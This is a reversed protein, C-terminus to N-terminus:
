GQLQQELLGVLEGVTQLNRYQKLDAQIQFSENLFFVFDVVDLSDLGLDRRFGADETIDERPIQFNKSLIDRIRDHIDTRTM